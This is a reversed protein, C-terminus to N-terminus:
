VSRAKLVISLTVVFGLTLAPLGAAGFGVAAGAGVVACAVGVVVAVVRSGNGVVVYGVAGLVADYGCLGRAVVDADVFVSCVVAAACSACVAVVCDRFSWVGLGVVVLAASYPSQQLFVQSLGLLPATVVDDVPAAPQLAGIPLLLLAWTVVLFPATFVRWGGRQAARFLLTAVVSGVVVAGVVDVSVGRLAGCACGVLFGNFGDREDDVVSAVVVGVVACVGAAVSGVFVAAVFCVGAVLSDAFCVQAAGKVCREVFRKM